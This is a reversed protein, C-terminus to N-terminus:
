VHLDAPPNWKRRACGLICGAGDGIKWTGHVSWVGELVHTLEIYDTVGLSVHDAVELRAPRSARSQFARSTSRM